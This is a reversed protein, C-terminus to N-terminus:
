VQRLPYRTSSQARIQPSHLKLLKRPLKLVGLCLPKSHLQVLPFPLSGGVLECEFIDTLRPARQWGGRSSCFLAPSKIRFNPHLRLMQTHSARLSAIAKALKIIGRFFVPNPKISLKWRQPARTDRHSPHGKNELPIANALAVKAGAEGEADRPSGM